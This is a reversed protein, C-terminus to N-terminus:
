RAALTPTALRVAVPPCSMQMAEGERGNVVTLLFQTPAPPQNAARPAFIGTKTPTMTFTLENQGKRFLISRPAQVGQPVGVIAFPLDSEVGNRELKVTVEVPQGDASMQMQSPTLSVRWGKPPGVTVVLNSRYAITANNNIRYIEYPLVDRTLERGNVMAKAKADVVTFTEPKADASATLVAFATTEDRRIVVPSATVGAPLNPFTVEIDGTVGVRRQVRLQAYVSGGPGLNPNDPTVTVLFDPEAPGALVRYVHGASSKTNADAIELTYAGPQTFSYDIRPDNSGGGGNSTALSQGKENRLTLVAKLPSNIRDAYVDFTYSGLNEKALTFTYRDAKGETIRGNLSQPLTIARVGAEAPELYEDYDGAVFPFTGRPTSIQRVGPPANAPVPVSLEASEMNKGAVTVQAATGRKGGAPFLYTDYALAGMSLRYVTSPSGRYLMDRVQVVYKGDEPATWDILPDLSFYGNNRVLERGKEDYLYLVPFFFAQSAASIRYASCNFVLREGKKATFGYSDVDRGGLQGSVTVPFTVPQPKEVKDNPEADLTEPDATVEFSYATSTGNAAVVRIERRGPPTNAAVTVRATLGASARAAAQVYRVIIDRDKAEIPANRDKIMRDVTAVWQDATRSINSPGRLEHCQGCKSTFVKQDDPNPKIGSDNLKATLGGGDVLIERAGGLDGGRIAVDLTTGARTGPPFLAAVRPLSQSSAPGAACVAAGLLLLLRSARM